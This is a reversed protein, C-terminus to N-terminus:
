PVSVGEHGQILPYKSGVEVVDTHCIGAGVIDVILEDAKPERLYVEELTRKGLGHTVIARAKIREKTGNM